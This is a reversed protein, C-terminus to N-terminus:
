NAASCPKAIKIIELSSGSTSPILSRTSTMRCPLITASYVRSSASWSRMAVAMILSGIVSLTAPHAFFGFDSGSLTTRQNKDWQYQSNQQHQCIDGEGEDILWFEARCGGRRHQFRARVIFKADDRTAQHHYGENAHKHNQEANPSNDCGM